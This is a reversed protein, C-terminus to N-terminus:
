GGLTHSIIPGKESKDLSIGMYYITIKSPPTHSDLILPPKECCHTCNKLSLPVFIKGEHMRAHLSKEQASMYIILMLDSNM